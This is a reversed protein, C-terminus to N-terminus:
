PGIPSDSVNFSELISGFYWERTQMKQLLCHFKGSAVHCAGHLVASCSLIRLHFNLQGKNIWVNFSKYQRVTRYKSKLNIMKM